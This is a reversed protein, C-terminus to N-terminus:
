VTFVYYYKLLYIVRDNPTWYNNMQLIVNFHGVGDNIKFSFSSKVQWPVGLRILEENM